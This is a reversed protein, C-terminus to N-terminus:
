ETTAKDESALIERGRSKKQYGGGMFILYPLCTSSDNQADTWRDSKDLRYRRLQEVMTLWVQYPPANGDSPTDCLFFHNVIKLTLTM